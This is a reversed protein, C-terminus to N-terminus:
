PGSLAGKKNGNGRGTAAARLNRCTGAEQAGGNWFRAMDWNQPLNRSPRASNKSCIARRPQSMRRNELAM